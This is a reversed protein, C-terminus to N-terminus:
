IHIRFAANRSGGPSRSRARTHLLVGGGRSFWGVAGGQGLGDWPQGSRARRRVKERSEDRIQQIKELPTDAMQQLWEKEAGQLLVGALVAAANPRQPGKGRASGKKHRASHPERASGPGSVFPNTGSAMATAM